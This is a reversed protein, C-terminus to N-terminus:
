KSYKSTIYDIRDEEKSLVADIVMLVKVLNATGRPNNRYFDQINLNPFHQNIVECNKECVINLLQAFEKDRKIWKARRLSSKFIYNKVAFFLRIPVNKISMDRWFLPADTTEDAIKALETFHKKLFARQMTRNVLFLPDWTLYEDVFDPDLYMTYREKTGYITEFFGNKTKSGKIEYFYKYYIEWRKKTNLGSIYKRTDMKLQEIDAQNMIMKLKSDAALLNLLCEDMNEYTFKLIEEFDFEGFFVGGHEGNLMVDFEPLSDFCGIEISSARNPVLEVERAAKRLYSESNYEIFKFNKLKFYKAIRKSVKYGNTKIPGFLYKEGICYPVIKMNYKQAFYVILRSDWGGSLGVGFRTNADYKQSLFKFTNDFLEYVKDITEQMSAEKPLYTMEWFKDFVIKNTGPYIMGYTAPPVINYDNIITKHYPIIHHIILEKVALWNVDNEEIQLVSLGRWFDDTIVRVEKKDYYYINDKGMRDTAFFLEDTQINYDWVIFDGKRKKVFQVPDTVFEAFYEEETKDFEYLTKEFFFLHEGYKTYDGSFYWNNIKEADTSELNSILFTKRM